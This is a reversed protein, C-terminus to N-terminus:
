RNQSELLSLIQEVSKGPFLKQLYEYDNGPFYNSFDFRLRSPAIPRGLSQAPGRADMIRFAELQEPLWTPTGPPTYQETASLPYGYSSGDLNPQGSHTLDTPVQTADRYMTKALNEPSGITQANFLPTTAANAGPIRFQNGYGFTVEPAPLSQRPQQQAANQPNARSNLDLSDGGPAGQAVGAGVLSSAGGGSPSSQQPFIQDIGSLNPQPQQPQSNMQGQGAYNQMGANQLNQGFDQREAGTATRRNIANDQSRGMPANTGIVKGPNNPDFLTKWGDAGTVSNPNPATAAMQQEGLKAQVAQRGADWSRNQIQQHEQDVQAQRAPGQALHPNKAYFQDLGTGMLSPKDGGARKFGRSPMMMNNQMAIIDQADQSIGPSPPLYNGQGRARQQSKNEGIRRVTSVAKKGAAQGIQSGFNFLSM